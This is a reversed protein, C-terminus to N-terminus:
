SPVELLTALTAIVNCGLFVFASVGAERLPAELAGPRGALAIRRTGAERLETALSVAHEAYGEDSGCLCVVDPVAGLAEAASAEKAKVGVTAFLARAYAVRPRSGAPAGVAVLLVDRPKGELKARLTEFPAADRTASADGRPPSPLAEDLNAFESVGLVPVRRRAIADHRTRATLAIRDAVAGSAIAADVGGERQIARFREWGDRALLNTLTDLYYSGAGADVVRGLGSEERLVHGTNRAVRRAQASRSSLADDFPLPTVLDAGGIVAAFTETTVRLMNVWPDRAAMTRSSAVAHISLPAAAEGSAALVKRLGIRLARLKCLEVFTDRGVGVRVVLPREGLPLRAVTTALALAIEDCADAGQDHFALTSVLSAAAGGLSCAHEARDLLVLVHPPPRSLLAKAATEPLGESAWLADAGGDLDELIEAETADPGHRMCVRFPAGGGLVRPVPPAEMYLPAVPLGELTQHVLTKEFPKGALEKEVQARWASPLVKPFVASM